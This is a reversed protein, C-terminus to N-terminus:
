APQRAALLKELEAAMRAFVGAWDGPSEQRWLRMNPYWPTDERGRMWRWDPYHSLALWVPRGLAGALHTPGTDSMVLLDLNMMAAAVERFGDPNDVIAEGLEEVHMEEPKSRLQAAGGASQLSILRVGPVRGLPAYEALRISRERDRKYKTNGQWVIGVRFGNSGIRDRWQAQREPDAVLYPVANPVNRLTTGFVAPLSMLSIRYDVHPLPLTRDVVEVATFNAQFLRRLTEPVALIVRAGERRILRVYRVFQISDGLGQEAHAVLVKGTLDEGRWIPADVPSDHQRDPRRLRWEHEAWADEWDGMSIRLYSRNVHVDANDPDLKAAADLDSLAPAGENFRALGRAHLFPAGSAGNKEAIALEAFSDDFRGLEALATASMVRAEPDGPDLGLAAQAAALADEPRQAAMLASARIAHDAAAADGDAILSDVLALAEDAREARLLLRAKIRRAEGDHADIGLAADVAAFGADYQRLECLATGRGVLAAVYQPKLTLAANFADLAERARHLVLLATGRNVHAEAFAPKSKLARDFAAVAEETRKLAKLVNGRNFHAAAYDARIRLAKDEETLAEELRGLSQLAVGRNAHPEAAQPAQRIAADFAKLADRYRGRQLLIDGALNQGTASREAERDSRVVALAEDFRGEGHLRVAEALKARLAAHRDPPQLGPPLM